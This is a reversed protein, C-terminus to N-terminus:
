GVLSVKLGRPHWAAIRDLTMKKQDDALSSKDVVERIDTTNSSLQPQLAHAIHEAAARNHVHRRMSPIHESMKAPGDTKGHRNFSSLWSRTFHGLRLPEDRSLTVKLSDTIADHLDTRSIVGDGDRDIRSFLHQGGAFEKEKITGDHDRDRAAFIASTLRTAVSEASRAARAPQASPADQQPFNGSLYIALDYPDVTGDGNFDYPSDAQGWDALLADLRAQWPDQPEQLQQDATTLVNPTVVKDTVAPQALIQLTKPGSPVVTNKAITHVLPKAREATALQATLAAKSKFASPTAPAEASIPKRAPSLRSAALLGHTLHGALASTTLM